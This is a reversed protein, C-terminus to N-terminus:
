SRGADDAAQARRSARGAERRTNAAAQRLDAKAQDANAQAADYAGELIRAAVDRGGLGFALALGLALAGMIATYTINVIDRAIGLQNLIMFVAISLTISPVVASILRGTPTNGMVRQVLGVAGVSVASAVLFILIAAFVNPLYAYIAGVFATLAPLNLASVALSIVGLMIAWFVIKSVFRSPSEILRSVVGGGKAVNVSRDFRVRHLARRTLSRLGAAVFYGIILILLAGIVQPLYEFVRTVGNELAQGFNFNDDVLRGGSNISYM